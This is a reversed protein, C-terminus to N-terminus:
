AVCSCKFMCIFIHMCGTVHLICVCLVCVIHMCTHRYAHVKICALSCTCLSINYVNYFSTCYDIVYGHITYMHIYLSSVCKRKQVLSTEIHLPKGKQTPTARRMLQTPRLTITCWLKMFVGKIKEPDRVVRGAINGQKRM